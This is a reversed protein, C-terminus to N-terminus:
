GEIDQDRCAFQQYSTLTAVVWSGTITCQSGIPIFLFYKTKCEFNLRTVLVTAIPRTFTGSGELRRTDAHAPVIVAFAPCSRIPDNVEVNGLSVKTGGCGLDPGFTVHTPKEFAIQDPCDDGGGFNIGFIFISSLLFSIM